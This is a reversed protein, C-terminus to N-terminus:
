RAIVTEGREFSDTGLVDLTLREYIHRICCWRQSNDNIIIQFVRTDFDGGGM